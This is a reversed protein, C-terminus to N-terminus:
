KFEVKLNHSVFFSPKRDALHTPLLPIYGNILVGASAINARVTPALSPPVISFFSNFFAREWDAFPAIIIVGLSKHRNRPLDGSYTRLSIYPVSWM